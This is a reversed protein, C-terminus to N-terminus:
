WRVGITIPRLDTTIPSHSGHLYRFEGYIEVNPRIKRAVGGGFDEGWENQSTSLFNGSLPLATSFCRGWWVWFGNCGSGPIATSSALEGTRHYFAAGAVIYGTWTNTVPLNIVPGLMFSYVRSSGSPALALQLASARLPLDDFQFDLRLGLFKNRNRAVGAAVVGGGSRVYTHTTGNTLSAGGGANFTWKQHDPPKVRHIPTSEEPSAEQNGEQQQDPQEQQQGPQQQQQQTPQHQQQAPQQDTQPPTPPQQAPSEQAHVTAAGALITMWILRLVVRFGPVMAFKRIM